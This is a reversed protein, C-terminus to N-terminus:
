CLGRQLLPSSLYEKLQLLGSSSQKKQPFFSAGDDEDSGSGATAVSAIREVSEVETLKRKIYLM